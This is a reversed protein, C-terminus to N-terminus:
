PAPTAPKGQKALFESAVLINRQGYKAL